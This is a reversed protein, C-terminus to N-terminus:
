FNWSLSCLNASNIGQFQNRPYKFTYFNPSQCAVYIPPITEKSDIGPSSLHIFIRARVPWLRYKQVKLLGLFRNWSISEAMRHLGAPRYSLGIGARNRAGMSQELTGACVLCCHFLFHTWHRLRSIRSQKRINNM